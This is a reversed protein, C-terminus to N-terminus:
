KKELATLEAMTAATTSRNEGHEPSKEGELARWIM